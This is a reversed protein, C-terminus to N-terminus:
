KNELYDEIVNMMFIFTIGIISIPNFIGQMIAFLFNELM